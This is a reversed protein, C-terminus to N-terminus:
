DGAWVSDLFYTNNNVNFSGFMLTTDPSSVTYWAGGNISYNFEISDQILKGEFFCPYHGFLHHWEYGNIQKSDQIIKRIKYEDLVWSKCDTSDIHLSSSSDITKEVGLIRFAKSKDFVVKQQITNPQLFITDTSNNFLMVKQTRYGEKSFYMKITNCSGAIGNIEYTGNQSTRTKGNFPNELNATDTKGIFVGQIPKLNNRDLVVGSLNYFCDCSTFFL